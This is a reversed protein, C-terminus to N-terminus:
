IHCIEQGPWTVAQYEASWRSNLTAPTAQFCSAGALTHIVSAEPHGHAQYSDVEYCALDTLM